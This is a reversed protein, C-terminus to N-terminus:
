GEQGAPDSTLEDPEGEGMDHKWVKGTQYVEVADNIDFWVIQGHADSLPAIVETQDLIAQTATEGDILEVDDPTAPRRQMVVWGPEGDDCASIGVLTDPDIDFLHIRAPETVTPTAPPSDDTTEEVLVEGMALLYRSLKGFGETESAEDFGRFRTRAPYVRKVQELGNMADTEVEAVLVLGFLHLFRNAFWLAGTNRFFTWEVETLMPKSEKIPTTIPTPM